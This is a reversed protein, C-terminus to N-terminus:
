LDGAEDGLDDDILAEDDVDGSVGESRHEAVHRWADLSTKMAIILLAPGLTGVGFLSFGFIVAFQQVFIRVYPRGMERNATTTKYLGERLFHVVFSQGHSVTFGGVMWLWDWAGWDFTDAAGEAATLIFASQIGVFMGYHVTFFLAHFIASGASKAAIVIRLLTYGGVVVTELVYALVIALASWDLVLLGVLPVVNAGLLGALSFRTARTLASGM